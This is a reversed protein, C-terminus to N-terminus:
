AISISPELLGALGGARWTRDDRTRGFRMMIVPVIPPGGARWTRGDRTRAFRMMIVPVIPPGAAEGAAPVFAGQFEIPPAGARWTRGDRTRGFRMMIVPVIPPGAAEGAAPVFAVYFEIPPAGAETGTDSDAVDCAHCIRVRPCRGEM